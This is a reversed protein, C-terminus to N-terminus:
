GLGKGLSKQINSIISIYISEFVDDIDSENIVTEAKSNSYFIIYKTKENSETKKFELVLIKVFKLGRLESLLDIPKSKIVTETDQLQREPNFYNM